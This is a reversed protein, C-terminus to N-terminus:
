GSPGKALSSEVREVREGDGATEFIVIIIIMGTNHQFQYDDIAVYM